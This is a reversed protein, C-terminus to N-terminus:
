SDWLGELLNVTGHDAIGFSPEESATVLGVSVGLGYAVEFDPFVVGPYHRIWLRTFFNFRSFDWHNKKYFKKKSFSGRPHLVYHPQEHVVEFEALGRPHIQPRREQLSNVM